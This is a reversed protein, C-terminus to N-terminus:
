VLTQSEGTAPSAPLSGMEMYEIADLIKVCQMRTANIEYDLVHDTFSFEWESRHLTCEVLVTTGVAFPFSRFDRQCYLPVYPGFEFDTPAVYEVPLSKVTIIGDHFWTHIKPEKGHNADETADLHMIERLTCLQSDYLPGFDFGWGSSLWVPCRLEFRNFGRTRICDHNVVSTDWDGYALAVFTEFVPVRFPPSTIISGCDVCDWRQELWVRACAYCHGHGCGYFVPHSLLQMCITCRQGGPVNPVHPPGGGIGLWIDTVVIAEDRAIHAGAVAPVVQSRSRNPIAARAGPRVRRLLDASAAGVDLPVPLPATRSATLPRSRPQPTTSSLHRRTLLKNANVAPFFTHLTPNKLAVVRSRPRPTPASSPRRTLAKNANVVPFYDHLTPTDAVNAPM